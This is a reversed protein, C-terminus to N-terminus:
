KGGPRFKGRHNKGAQPAEAVKDPEKIDISENQPAESVKDPEEVIVCIPDPSKAWEDAVDDNVSYEKGSMFSTEPGCATKLMRIKKM